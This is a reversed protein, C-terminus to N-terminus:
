PEAEAEPPQCSNQHGIYGPSAKTRGADSCASRPVSPSSPRLITVAEPRGSALMHNILEAPGTSTSLGVAELGAQGPEIADAAGLILQESLQDIASARALMTPSTVGLDQLIREVPGPLGEAQHPELGPQASEREGSPTLESDGRIATRALTLIHSPARLETAIAAVKTATRASTTGAHHYADLLANLRDGPAPAFPHPIDFRDPLSRTPVLLRGVGAAARIQSHDAAAIQTLTQSAQHVAAIVIPLDGPEPALGQPTRTAHSPGLAPTWGPDTYALRGTWLALDAAEAAAPAITGRTDTTIRYWSRAAHLWAERAQGATNACGLLSGALRDAGHQGARAALTTLLIQCNHSIVTNCTAAHSLSDATLAPSWTPDAATITAAHRIREATTMIGQCLGTVTEAGSPICRPAPTSAPIDHLLRIEATTVPHHRQADQVACDLVWLWQCATNLRHRQEGTGHRAAPGPLAIRAGHEAARRAWLGLELLLARAVPASTIVPAWESRELRSGDPQVAIHTHLLDRGAALTGAAADLRRAAPDAARRRGPRGAGPPATRLFASANELAEQAQISAWSWTGPPSAKPYPGALVAAIDASYRAMVTVVGHMSRTVEQVQGARATGGFGEASPQPLRVAPRLQARAAYAFDGFAPRTTVARTNPKSAFLHHRRPTGGARM